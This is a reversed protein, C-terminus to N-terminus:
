YYIECGVKRLEVIDQLLFRIRTTHRKSILIKEIQNFYQNLRPQLYLNLILLQLNYITVFLKIYVQPYFLKQFFLKFRPILCNM